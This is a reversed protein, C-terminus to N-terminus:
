YSTAAEAAEPATKFGTPEYRGTMMNLAYEMGDTGTKPKLLASRNLRLFRSGSRAAKMAEFAGEYDGEAFLARAMQQQIEEQTM